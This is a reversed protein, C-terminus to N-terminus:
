RHRIPAWFDDWDFPRSYEGQHCKQCDGAALPRFTFNVTKDGQMQRLHLSGPGHCGECGVDVLKDGQYERRYGSPTGFGTTHCGVCRPDADAQRAKLTAFAHAHASATWAAAAQPHCGLCQGTGVYAAEGRVGPIRDQELYHPDDLALRTQRVEQRYAEMMARLSSDQGITDRLLRIENTTAQVPAGSALQLRLIGLARSENTVFYVWSRNEKVLRQAPQSVNGGLVVQCEFFEQALRALTAEDAFALLVILDTQGRLATLCREIAPEMAAVKLGPGLRGAVGRPDLVGILGISRAGRHVVRYGACIPQGTAQDLVNASLLPVPSAQQFQRLQTASFQAERAGLNLADYHMASFAQLVYRYELVDYDEHGGVADGVDVRVANTGAEAELVTKLRTLGGYQGAFCGCPELRGRTDCTFYLPLDLPAVPTRGCGGAGLALLLM